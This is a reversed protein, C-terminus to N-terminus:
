VDKEEKQNSVKMELRAVREDLQKHLALLDKAHKIMLLQKKYEADNMEILTETIERNFDSQFMDSVLIGLFALSIGAECRQGTIVNLVLVATWLGMAVKNGKHAGKFVKKTEKICLGNIEKIKELRKKIM